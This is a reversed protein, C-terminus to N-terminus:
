SKKKRDLGSFVTAIMARLRTVDRTIALHLRGEGDPDQVPVAHTELRLQM